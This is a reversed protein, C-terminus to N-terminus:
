VSGLRLLAEIAEREQPDSTMGFASFDFNNTQPETRQPVSKTLASLSPGGGGRTGMTHRHVSLFNGGPGSGSYSPSRLAAAGVAAWDEDDTVDDIDEDMLEDEDPAESSSCSGDLSMKDAETELMNVDADDEHSFM